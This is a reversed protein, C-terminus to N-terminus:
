VWQTIYQWIPPINTCYFVRILHSCRPYDRPLEITSRVWFVKSPLLKKLGILRKITWLNAASKAGSVNPRTLMMTLATYEALTLEISFTSKIKIQETKRVNKGHVIMLGSKSNGYPVRQRPTCEGYFRIAWFNRQQIVRSVLSPEQWKDYFRLYERAHENENENYLQWKPESIM